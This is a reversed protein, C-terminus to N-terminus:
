EILGLIKSTYLLVVIWSFVESSITEVVSPGHKSEVTTEAVVAAKAKGINLAEM